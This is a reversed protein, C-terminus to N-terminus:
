VHARGIQKGTVITGGDHEDKDKKSGEELPKIPALKEKEKAFKKAPDHPKQNYKMAKVGKKHENVIDYIKM